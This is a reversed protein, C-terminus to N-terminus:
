VVIHEQEIIRDQVANSPIFQRNEAQRRKCILYLILIAKIQTKTSAWNIILASERASTAEGYRKGDNKRLKVALVFVANFL